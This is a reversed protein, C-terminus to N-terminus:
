PSPLPYPFHNWGVDTKEGREASKAIYGKSQGRRSLIRLFTLRFGVLRLSDTIQGRLMSHVLEM